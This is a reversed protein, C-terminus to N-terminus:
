KHYFHAYGLLHGIEHSILDALRIVLLDMETHGSVISDSFVFGSDSLDQNGVDVQEALGLFAGYEAFASDDGGIYITSYLTHPEPKEVTFIVGSGAFTRNLEELVQSVITDEQGSLHSLATFAPIDIGEIIVPGNYTVNEEGDFDFYVIQGEFYDVAPNVFYLGPLNLIGDPKVETAYESLISPQEGTKFKGDVPDWYYQGAAWLDITDLLDFDGVQGQAWLDIYYLLEFDGIVYDSDKDSPHYNV